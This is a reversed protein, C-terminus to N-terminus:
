ANFRSDVASDGHHAGKPVVGAPKEERLIQCHTHTKLGAPLPINVYKREDCAHTPM